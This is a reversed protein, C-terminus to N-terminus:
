GGITIPRARRTRTSDAASQLTPDVPEPANQLGTSSGVSAPMPFGGFLTEGGPTRAIGGPGAEQVASTAGSFDTEPMPLSYPDEGTGAGIVGGGTDVGNAILRAQQWQAFWDGVPAGADQFAQWQRWPEDLGRIVTPDNLFDKEQDYVQDFLRHANEFFTNQQHAELTEWPSEAPNGGREVWPDMPARDPDDGQLTNFSTTRAAGARELNTALDPNNKLVIARLEEGNMTMYFRGTAPDKGMSGRLASIEGRLQGELSRMFDFASEWRQMVRDYNARSEAKNDRENQNREATQRLWYTLEASVDEVTRGSYTSREMDTFPAMGGKEREAEILPLMSSVAADNQQRELVDQTRRYNSDSEQLEVVQQQRQGAEQQLTLQAQEMASRQDELERTRAGETIGSVAQGIQQLFNPSGRPFAATNTVPNQM